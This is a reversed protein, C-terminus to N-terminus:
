EVGIGDFGYFMLPAIRWDEGFEKMDPDKWLQSNKANPVTKIITVFDGVNYKAHDTPKVQKRHQRWEVIYEKWYELEVVEKVVAGTYFVPDM